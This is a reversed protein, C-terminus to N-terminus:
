CGIYRKTSRTCQTVPSTAVSNLFFGVYFCDVTAKDIVADFTNAEYSMSKVDEVEYRFEDRKNRCKDNLFKVAVPNIDTSVIRSYSDQFMEEALRSIGCGVNLILDTKRLVGSLLDKLCVWRQYWEFYDKVSQYRSEWYREEGYLDM